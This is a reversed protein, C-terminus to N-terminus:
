FPCKIALYFSGGVYHLEKIDSKKGVGRSEDMGVFFYKRIVKLIIINTVHIKIIQM